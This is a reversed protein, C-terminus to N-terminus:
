SNPDALGVAEVMPRDKEPVVRRFWSIVNGNGEELKRYLAAFERKAAGLRTTAGLEELVSIHRALAVLRYRRDIKADSHLGELVLDASALEDQAIYYAALQLAAKTAYERHISNVEQPFYEGVAKWGEEDNREVAIVYQQSVDEAKTVRSPRLMNAVVDRNQPGAAIVGLILAAIPGLVAIARSRFKRRQRKKAEEAARQLHATASSTGVSYGTGSTDGRLTDLLETPSQFRKAPDKLTLRAVIAVLWEPVDDKGRVRDLPKPTENLHAYALAMPDESDFPPRGALLHYMTVGLSYLDSRSDVPMGQVQEPSMYRLTGMPDGTRTLNTQESQIQALGFDAVWVKGQSDLLLNAPKIDRHVMGKEHAHQLGLAAQRVYDCAEIFPLPGRHQVVASLDTGEVFEMALFHVKGAQEADYAAVINPHTLQAAAQVERRFREVAHSHQILQSNILKLAVPRKMLRHQARYVAGMGGQGVREVVEYRPHDQLEDPLESSEIAEESQVLMTAAHVSDEAPDPQETGEGDTPESTEAEPGAAAAEGSLEGDKPLTRVMGAFTDDKLNLLTDCCEKCESLHEEIWSSESPDLRGLGFSALTDPDPHKQPNSM